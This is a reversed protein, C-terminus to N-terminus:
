NENGVEEENRELNLGSVDDNKPLRQDRALKRKKQTSSSVLYDTHLWWSYLQLCLM